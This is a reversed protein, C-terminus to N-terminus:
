SDERELWNLCIAAIQKLEHARTDNHNGVLVGGLEGVEEVLRCYWYFDDQDRWLHKYQEKLAVVDEVRNGETPMIATM